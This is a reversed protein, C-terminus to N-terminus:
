GLYLYDQSIVENLQNFYDSFKKIFQNDPKNVNKLKPDEDAVRKFMCSEIDYNDFENEYLVGINNLKKKIEEESGSAYNSCIGLNFVNKAVDYACVKEYSDTPDEISKNVVLDILPLPHCNNISLFKNADALNMFKKPNIIGDMAHRPNILYYGNGDTILYEYCQKPMVTSEYMNTMKEIMEFKVVLVFLIILIIFVILCRAIFINMINLENFM